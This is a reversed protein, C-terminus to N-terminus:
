EDEAEVLDIGLDSLTALHDEIVESSVEDSPLAANLEAVTVYGRAQGRAVLQRMAESLRAELLSLLDPPAAGDLVQVGQAALM